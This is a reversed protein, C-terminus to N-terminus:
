GALRWRDGQAVLVTLAQSALASHSELHIRIPGTIGEFQTSGIVDNLRDRDIEDVENVARAVIDVADAAFSSYAHYTGHRATYENFWTQRAAKAPSSAIVEDIVLAETFVMRTGRLAQAEAGSIFLEHAATADLLLDGDYDRERLQTALRNVAPARLAAVVVDTGTEEPEEAQGGSLGPQGPTGQTAADPPQYDAVAAAAGTLEDEAGAVTEDVVVEAGVREVAATLARRVEEGYLDDSTVLAATDADSAEVEDGLVRATDAPSPGLKYLYPRESVPEAVSDASALSLTPIGVDNLVDAADVTCEGCGGTVVASVDPDRALESLNGAATARDSRNDRIELELVRDDGLLGQENVQDVRLRLADQYVEGRASGEGTLELDAAILITEQPDDGVALADGCGAALMAVAAGSAVVVGGPVQRVM